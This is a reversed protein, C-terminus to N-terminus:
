RTARPTPSTWSHATGRSFIWCTRWSSKPLSSADPLVWDTEGPMWFHADPCPFAAIRGRFDAISMERVDLLWMLAGDSGAAALLTKWDRPASATVVVIDFEGKTGPASCEIGAHEFYQRLLEAGSDSMLASKADPKELLAIYSSVINVAAYRHEAPDFSFAPKRPWLRWTAFAVVLATAAALWLMIKKKKSVM